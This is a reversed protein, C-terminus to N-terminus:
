EHSVGDAGGDLHARALDLQALERTGPDPRVVPQQADLGVADAAAVDLDVPTVQASVAGLRRDGPVLRQADDLLDALLRRRPPAYPRAIPHRQLDDHRAVVALVAQGA